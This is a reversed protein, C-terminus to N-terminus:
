IKNAALNLGMNGIKNAAVILKINGTRLPKIQLKTKTKYGGPLMKQSAKHNWSYSINDFYIPHSSYIRLAVRM